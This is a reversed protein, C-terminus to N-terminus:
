FKRGKGQQAAESKSAPRARSAAWRRMADIESAMTKSIPVTNNIEEILLDANVDGDADFAAYRAAIVIAEIESGTYENCAEAAQKIGANSIKIGARKLHIRFIEERESLSPLDTFFMEDFRGKRLLAADLKSVDNATAVVFVPSTKDQLWTLFTGFVRSTTGGDTKGSSQTGSFAKDIEDIWLVCPAIAEAVQIVTRTNRESEGVLSGFIRGADLKLLPMGFINSTAKALLSKGTGPIGVNLMGKPVPLNAERGEKTFVRRRKRLWAKSEGNGGVDSDSYDTDIIELIGNKKITNCKERMVIKPDIDKKGSEIYAVAFATEAEAETLGLAANLIDDRNGNLHIGASGAINELVVNLQERTPLSFEVVVVEKEIEPPLCLRCGVTIIHRNSQKGVWLADKVKRYLFPSKEEMFLHHDALILVSKEPLKTFDDFVSIGDSEAHQAGTEPNVIGTTISWRFLQYGLESAAAKIDAEVRREEHSIIHIGPQGAQIYTKIKDKM